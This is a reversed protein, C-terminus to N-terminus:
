ESQRLRQCKWCEGFNGPNEERCAPCIWTPGSDDAGEQGGFDQPPPSAAEVLADLEHRLSDFLDLSRKRDPWLIQLNRTSRGRIYRVGTLGTLDESWMLGWTNYARVAGQGFVYKLGLQGLLYWTGIGLVASQALRWQDATTWGFQQYTRMAFGAVLLSAIALVSVAACALAQQPTSRRFEGQVRRLAAPWQSAVTSTLPPSPRMTIAGFIPRLDQKDYITVPLNADRRGNGIYSGAPRGATHGVCWSRGGVLGRCITFCGSRSCVIRM